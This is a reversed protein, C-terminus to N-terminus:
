RAELKRKLEAEYAVLEADNMESIPKRGGGPAPQGPNAPQEPVAGNTVPVGFLKNFETEPAKKYGKSGYYDDVAANYFLYDNEYQAYRDRYLQSLAQMVQEKNQWAGVDGGLYDIIRQADQETMVGGGVVATRNGGLLGQLNGEALRRDLESKSLKGTGLLTKIGATFKDALGALGQDLGGVSNAYQTIQRLSRESDTLDQKVKRFESFSPVNKQMATPTIPEAGEPIPQMTGDSGMIGYQGTRQDRVARGLPKGNLALNDGQVFRNEFPASAEARAKSEKAALGVKANEGAERVAQELPITQNVTGPSLSWGAPKQQRNPDIGYARAAAETEAENRAAIQERYRRIESNREADGLARNSGLVDLKGDQGMVPTGGARTLADILAREREAEMRQRLLMDQQIARQRDAENAMGQQFAPNYARVFDRGFISAM